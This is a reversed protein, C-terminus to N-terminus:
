AEPEATPITVNGEGTVQGDIFAEVREMHVLVGQRLSEFEDSPTPPTLNTYVTRIKEHQKQLGAFTKAM